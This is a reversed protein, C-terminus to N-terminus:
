AARHPVAMALVRRLEVLRAPKVLVADAGGLRCADLADDTEDGTLMVCYVALGRQKCHRVIELGTGTEFHYDTLLADFPEADLWAIAGGVDDVKVVDYGARALWAGIAERLSPNDDAVLVRPNM